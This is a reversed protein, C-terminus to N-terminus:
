QIYYLPDFWGDVDKPMYMLIVSDVCYVTSSEDIGAATILQILRHIRRQDMLKFHLILNSYPFLTNCPIYM